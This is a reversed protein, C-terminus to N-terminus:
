ERRLTIARIEEDLRQIYALSGELDSEDPAWIAFTTNAPNLPGNTTEHIVFSTFRIRLTHFLSDNMRYYFSKGSSMNGLSIVDTVRGEDSFLIVDAEGEVVHFSESKNTHRHPRVYSDSAFAILMEHIQNETSPHACLRARRRRSQLAALKLEDIDQSSATIFPGKVSFVDPGVHIWDM